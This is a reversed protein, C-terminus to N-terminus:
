HSVEGPQSFLDEISVSLREVGVRVFEKLRPLIRPLEDVSELAELDMGEPLKQYLSWLSVSRLNRGLILSEDEALGIIRMNELVEFIQDRRSQSIVIGDLLESESLAKGTMHAAHLNQLLLLCQILPPHQQSENAEPKMSFTRVLIAGILVLAWVLYLWSLFLPAAAFAGYIIALNSKAVILTFINKAQEFLIMTIFGGLLAHKFPVRTNPVAYYLVTFAATSFIVPMYSLLTEKLGFTDLGTVLPLSILYSSILTGAVLLPPGFTMVGWYLLFRQLGKRPELVHWILNFSKEITVLMMFATVVLFAVSFGTLQGAQASFKVLQEKIVASSQPVFNSFIFSQISEGVSSFDSFASLIWYTVTMLPVVAFLTTYTLSAANSLCDREVFQQWVQTGFWKSYTWIKQLM